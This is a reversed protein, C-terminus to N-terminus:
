DTPQSSNAPRLPQIPLASDITRKGSLDYTTVRGTKDLMGSGLPRANHGFFEVRRMGLDVLAYGTALGDAAFLDVRYRESLTNVHGWGIRRDRIDYYDVRGARHHLLAYGVHRGEPDYLDVRKTAFAPGTLGVILAVALALGKLWSTM